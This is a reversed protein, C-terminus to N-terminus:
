HIETKIYKISNVFYILDFDFMSGHVSLIKVQRIVRLEKDWTIEDEVYIDTLFIKIWMKICFKADYCNAILKWIHWYM